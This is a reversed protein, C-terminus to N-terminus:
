RWPLIREMSNSRVEVSTTAAPELPETATAPRTVALLAGFLALALMKM